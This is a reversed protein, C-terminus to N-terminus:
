GTDWYAESPLAALSPCKGPRQGACLMGVLHWDDHHTQAWPWRSGPHQASALGNKEGHSGQRWTTTTGTKEKDQVQGSQVVSSESYFEVPNNKELYVKTFKYAWVNSNNEEASAKLTQFVLCGAINIYTSVQHHHKQSGKDQVGNWSPFLDQSYTAVFKGM